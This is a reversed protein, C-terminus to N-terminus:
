THHIHKEKLFLLLYNHEHTQGKPAASSGAANIVRQDRTRDTEHRGLESTTVGIHVTNLTGKFLYCICTQCLHCTTLFSCLLGATWIAGWLTPPPFSPFRQVELDCAKIETKRKSKFSSWIDTQSSKATCPSCPLFRPQVPWLPGTEFMGPERGAHLIKCEAKECRAWSLMHKWNERPTLLCTPVILSRRPLLGSGRLELTLPTVAPHHHFCGVFLREGERNLRCLVPQIPHPPGFM